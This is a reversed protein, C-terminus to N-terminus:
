EINEKSKSHRLPLIFFCRKIPSLKNIKGNVICKLCIEICIKNHSNDYTNRYVHRTIQDHIIIYELCKVIDNCDPICINDIYQGWNHSIYLDDDLSARFWIKPNEFWYELVNM